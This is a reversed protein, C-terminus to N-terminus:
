GDMRGNAIEAATEAASPPRWHKRAVVALRDIMGAMERLTDASERMEGAGREGMARAIRDLRIALVRMRAPTM